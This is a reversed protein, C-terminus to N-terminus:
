WRWVHSEFIRYSFGLLKVNRVIREIVHLYSPKKQVLSVAPGRLGKTEGDRRLLLKFFFFFSGESGTQAFGEQAYSELNAELQAKTTM